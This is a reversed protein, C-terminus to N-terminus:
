LCNHAAMHTSLISGPAKPLAALARLWQVMEGAKADSKKFYQQGSGFMM